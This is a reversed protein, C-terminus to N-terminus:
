CPCARRSARTRSRGTGPSPRPTPSRPPPPPSLSTPPHHETTLSSSSSHPHPHPYHAITHPRPPTLPSRPPPPSLPTPPTTHSPHASMPCAHTHRFSCSVPHRSIFSPPARSPNPLLSPTHAHTPLAAPSISRYMTCTQSHCCRSLRGVVGVFFLCWGACLLCFWALLLLFSFSVLGVGWWRAGVLWVCFCASAKEGGREERERRRVDTRGM